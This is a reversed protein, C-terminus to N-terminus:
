RRKAGPGVLAALRESLERFLNPRDFARRIQRFRREDDEDEVMSELSSLLAQASDEEGKARNVMALTGYLAFAEQIHLQEREILGDLLDHADDIAGREILMQALNCRGFLYDPHDAIVERLLQMAEEHRGQLTRVSALNGHAVAHKPVRELIRNLRQEAGDAEGQNFLVISEDLLAALDAPLDSPKSERTVETNFLRIQKVEGRDWLEVTEDRAIQGQARLYHLLDFREDSSGIPLRVFGRLLQAADLDGQQVRHKLIFCVLTCLAEDGCRYVAELYANSATLADLVVANKATDISLRQAWPIPLAEHRELMIPFSPPAQDRECLTLNTSAPQLAPHVKLARKWLGMAEDRRGLRSAACAGFHYLVAGSIGDNDAFWKTQSAREFADWAGVEERLLLLANLQSLADDLRRPTAAALPTCLGQAGSADGRYLRLQAAKGLAFLNDPDAEWGALFVELAEDIRELHFLALAYNNRAPQLELGELWHAAGRFDNGDLHLKGIDFREIDEDSGHSGDALTLMAAKLGPEIPYGPTDLGLARLARAAREALMLHRLHQALEFLATQAPVSNPRCEAWAFAALAAARPNDDADLAEVLARHLSGEKPFQRLLPKIKQVAAQYHGQELLREIAKLQAPAPRPESRTPKKTAKKTV